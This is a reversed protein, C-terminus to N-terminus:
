PTKAQPSEAATDAAAAASPAASNPLGFFRAQAELRVQLERLSGEVFRERAAAMEEPTPEASGAGDRGVPRVATKLVKHLQGDLLMSQDISLPNSRLAVRSPTEM